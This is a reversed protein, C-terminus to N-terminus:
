KKIIVKKWYKKKSRSRSWIEKVNGKPLWCREVDKKHEISVGARGKVSIWRMYPIGDQKAVLDFVNWFDRNKSWRGMGRKDDVAWGEAELEKKAKIEYKSVAMKLPRTTLWGTM